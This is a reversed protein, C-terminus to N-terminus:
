FILLGTAPVSETLALASNEFQQRYVPLHKLLQKGYRKLLIRRDLITIQGGDQENRLLRGCAQILRISANPLSINRFYASGMWDKINRAVPHTYPAFPIRTIVVHRCLDGPLDVGEAFSALGFIVSAKGEGVRVHHQELMASRSLGNDQMLVKGRFSAPLAAYTMQMAKRSNFLVLSGTNGQILSPLLAASEQCYRQDLCSGLVNEMWPVVLRAQRSYDLVSSFIHAPVSASLGAHQRFYDFRGMGRLTASILAVGWAKDWLQEKLWTAVWAPSAQLLMSQEYGKRASLGLWRAIPPEGLPDESLFLEWYERSVGLRFLAAPLARSFLTKEWDALKEMEGAEQVWGSYKSFVEILYVLETRLVVGHEAIFATIKEGPLLRIDVDGASHQRLKNVFGSKLFFTNLETLRESCTDFAHNLRSADFEKRGVPFTNLLQPLLRNKAYDLTEHMEMLDCQRAAHMLAMRPFGHAEDIIYLTDELDPLIAGGGLEVDSLLLSHNAVVLEASAVQRRMQQFGCCEFHECQQGTCTERTSVVQAAVVTNLNDQWEDLDGKWEGNEFRSLMRQALSSDAPAGFPLVNDYKMETQQGSEALSQLQNICAFRGRGKALAYIVGAEAVQNFQPLDRKMLQMQLSITGTVVVLKRNNSRALALGACLYALTKGTGTPAELMVQGGEALNSILASLMAQQQKRPSFGEQEGFRALWNGAENLATSAAQTM